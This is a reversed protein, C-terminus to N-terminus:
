VVMKFWKKYDIFGTDVISHLIHITRDPLNIKDIYTHTRIHTHQTLTMTLSTNCMGYSNM